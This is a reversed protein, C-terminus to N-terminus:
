IKEFGVVESDNIIAVMGKMAFMDICDQITVAQLNM